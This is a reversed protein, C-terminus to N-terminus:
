LLHLQAEFLDLGLSAPEFRLAFLPLLEGRRQAQARFLSLLAHDRKELLAGAELLLEASGIRLEALKVLRRVRLLRPNSLHSPGFPLVGLPAM